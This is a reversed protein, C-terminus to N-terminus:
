PESTGSRWANFGTVFGLPLPPVGSTVVIKLSIPADIFIDRSVIAILRVPADILPFEPPEPTGSRWAVFGSTYGLRLPAASSTTEAVLRIPSPLAGGLEQINKGLKIVAVVYKLTPKVVQAIVTLTIPDIDFDFVRKDVRTSEALIYVPFSQTTIERYPPYVIDFSIELEPVAPSDTPLLDWITLLSGYDIEEEVEATCLGWDETFCTPSSLSLWDLEIFEFDEDTVPESYTNAPVPNPNETVEPAVPLEVINPDLPFWTQLPEAPCTFTSM